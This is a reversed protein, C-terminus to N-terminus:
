KRSRAKQYLAKKRESLQSSEDVAEDPGNEPGVSGSRGETLPQTLINITATVRNWEQVLSKLTAYWTDIFEKRQKNASWLLVCNGIVLAVISVLFFNKEM